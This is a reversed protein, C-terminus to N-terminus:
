KKHQPKEKFKQEFLTTVTLFIFMKRYHDSAKEFLCFHNIEM